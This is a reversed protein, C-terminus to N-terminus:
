VSFCGNSSLSRSLILTIVLITAGILSIVRESYHSVLVTVSVAGNAVIVSIIGVAM